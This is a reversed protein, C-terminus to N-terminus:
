RRQVNRPGGRREAAAAKRIVPNNKGPLRTTVYGVALAYDAISSLTEPDASLRDVLAFTCPECRADCAAFYRQILQDDAGPFAEGPQRPPPAFRSDGHNHATESDRSM